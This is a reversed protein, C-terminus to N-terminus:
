MLGWREMEEKTAMRIPLNPKQDQDCLRELEGPPLKVFPLDDVGVDIGKRRGGGNQSGKIGCDKKM